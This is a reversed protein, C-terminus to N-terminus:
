TTTVLRAARCHREVDRFRTSGLTSVNYGGPALSGLDLQGELSLVRELCVRGTADVVRARVAGAPADSLRVM